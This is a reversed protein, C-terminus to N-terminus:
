YSMCFYMFTILREVARLAVEFARLRASQFYMFCGMSAIFWEAAGQTVVFGRERTIQIAMFYNKSM